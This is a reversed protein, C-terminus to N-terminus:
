INAILGGYRFAVPGKFHAIAPNRQIQLIRFYVYVYMIDRVLIGMHEIYIM